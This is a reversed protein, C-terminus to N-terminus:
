VLLFDQASIAHVNTLTAVVTASHSGTGDDDWFLQGSTQNGFIATLSL